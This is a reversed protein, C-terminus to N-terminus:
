QVLQVNTKINQWLCKVNIDLAKPLCLNHRRQLPKFPSFISCCLPNGLRVLILLVLYPLTVKHKSAPLIFLFDLRIM